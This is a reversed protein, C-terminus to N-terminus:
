QDREEQLQGTAVAVSQLRHNFRAFWVQAADTGVIAYRQTYGFVPRAWANAMEAPPYVGREVKYALAHAALDRAAGENLHDLLLGLTSVLAFTGIGVGLRRAVRAGKHHAPGALAFGAWVISAAMAMLAGVAARWILLDAAAIAMAAALAAVPSAGRRSPLSSQMAM